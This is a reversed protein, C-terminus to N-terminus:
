TFEGNAGDRRGYDNGGEASPYGSAMASLLWSSIVSGASAELMATTRAANPARAAWSPILSAPTPSRLVATESAQLL